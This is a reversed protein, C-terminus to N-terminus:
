GAWPRASPPPMSISRSEITALPHHREQLLGHDLARRCPRTLLVEDGSLV